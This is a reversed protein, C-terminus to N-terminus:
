APVGWLSFARLPRPQGNEVMMASRSVDDEVVRRADAYAHTVWPWGSLTGPAGTVVGGHSFTRGWKWVVVDGPLPAVQRPDFEHPALRRIIDLYKEEDQHLMWAPPYPRPDFAPILGTDVFTRVLLMGCDVCAGLTDGLNRYPTGIWKRVEACVEERERVEQEVM